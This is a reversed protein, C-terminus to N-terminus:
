YSSTTTRQQADVPQHLRLYADALGTKALRNGPEKALGKLFLNKANENQNAKLALHGADFLAGPTEDKAVIPADEKKGLTACGVGLALGLGIVAVKSMMMIPKRVNRQM